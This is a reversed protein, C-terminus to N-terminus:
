FYDSVCFYGLFFWGAINRELVFCHCLPYFGCDFIRSSQLQSQDHCGPFQLKLIIHLSSIFFKLIFRIIVQLACGKAVAEESNMTRKPEKGFFERLAGVVLPSRTASGVVEIEEISRFYETILL